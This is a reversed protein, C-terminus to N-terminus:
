CCCFIFWVGLLLQVHACCFDFLLVPLYLPLGFQFSHLFFGVAHKVSKVQDARRTKPTTSNKSVYVPAVLRADGSFSFELTQIRVIPIDRLVQWFSTIISMTPRRCKREVGGYIFWVCMELCQVHLMTDAHSMINPRLYTLIVRPLRINWRDM